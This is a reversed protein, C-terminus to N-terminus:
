KTSKRDLYGRSIAYAAVAAASRLGLKRMLNSRHKEITKQSLSLALAIERTRQGLAIRKMVELERDSLVGRDAQSRRLPDAGARVRESIARSICRNGALVTGIAANLEQATDSKLLYADAGARVASKVLQYEKLTTLVLVRATPWRRRLAIIMSIGARDPPAIDVIILEPDPTLLVQELSGAGVAGLVHLREDLRLLACLGDRALSEPEVILIPIGNHM